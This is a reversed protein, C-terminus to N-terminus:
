ENTVGHVTAWWLGRDLPNRLCSYHLPNDNGEGPSRGWGPTLGMDGANAPPNKALLSSPFDRQLILLYSKKISPITSTLSIIGLKKVLLQLSSNTMM